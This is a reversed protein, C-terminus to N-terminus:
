IMMADDHITMTSYSKTKIISIVFIMIIHNYERSSSIFFLYLLSSNYNERAYMRFIMMDDHKERKENKYRCTVQWSSAMIIGHHYSSRPLVSCIGSGGRSKRGSDIIM